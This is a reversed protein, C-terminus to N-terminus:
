RLTDASSSPIAVSEFDPTMSSPIAVSEFDPTMPLIHEAVLPNTSNIVIIRHISHESTKYLEFIFGQSLMKRPDLYRFTLFKGYILYGTLHALKSM